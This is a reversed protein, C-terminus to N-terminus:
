LWEGGHTYEIPQFDAIGTDNQMIQTGYERCASLLMCKDNQITYINVCDGFYICLNAIIGNNEGISKM